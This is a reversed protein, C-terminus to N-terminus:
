GLSWRTFRSLELYWKSCSRWDRGVSRPLGLASDAIIRFINEEIKHCPFPNLQNFWIYTNNTMLFNLHLQKMHCVEFERYFIPRHVSAWIEDWAIYGFWGVHWRYGHIWPRQKETTDNGFIDGDVSYIRLSAEQGYLPGMLLHSAVTDQIHDILDKKWAANQPLFNPPETVSLQCCIAILDKRPCRIASNRVESEM